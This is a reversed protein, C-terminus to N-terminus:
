PTSSPKLAAREAIHTPARVLATFIEAFRNGAYYREKAESLSRLTTMSMVFVAIGCAVVSSIALAQGKMSSLDRLLKRNLAKM